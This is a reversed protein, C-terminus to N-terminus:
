GSYLIKALYALRCIKLTELVKRDRSKRGLEKEQKKKLKECDFNTCYLNAFNV